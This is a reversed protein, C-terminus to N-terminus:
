PQRYLYINRLNKYQLYLDLKRAAIIKIIYIEIYLEIM